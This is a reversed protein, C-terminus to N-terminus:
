KGMANELQAISLNLDFDAQILSVQAQKLSVQADLLDLITAAGLNYKEQTIKMNEEAANVNETSVMKAEKLQEIDYYSTKINTILLNKSEAEFARANNLAVKSSTVDRERLFGDFISWNLNFGVTTSNSEFNFLLTDGSTGEGSSYRAFGTASPLYSSYSSKASRSKADVDRQSSLFGPENTLGYAIAEDLSGEIERVEYSTSFNHDQNPDLGVTYALNAESTVVANKARLLTLKDNGYLVKQKLVDSKSASGLEYRSNILKLQEESRKVAEEQVQINEINALYAYYSLKVSYVLDQEYNLVDLKARAHDAKAAAYNFINSFSFTISGSISLNKSTRDQDALDFLEGGVEGSKIDREKSEYYEYRASINPLFAGLASRKSAGALDSLGRASIISARNKLALNVCDDLTLEAANVSISLVIVLIIVVFLNQKAFKM